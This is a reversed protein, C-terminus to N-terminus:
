IVFKQEVYNYPVNILYDYIDNEGLEDDGDCIRIKEGDISVAIKITTKTVSVFRFSAELDNITMDRNYIKKFRKNREQQIKPLALEKARKLIRAQDNQSVYKDFAKKAKKEKHEVVAFSLIGLGIPVVAGLALATGLAEQTIELEDIASNLSELAIDLQDM